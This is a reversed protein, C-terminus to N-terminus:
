TRIVFSSAQLDFASRRKFTSLSGLLDSLNSEFFTPHFLENIPIATVPQRIQLQSLAHRRRKCEHRMVVGLAHSAAHVVHLNTSQYASLLLSISLFLPEQIIPPMPPIAAPNFRRLPSSEATLYGVYSQTSSFQSGEQEEASQIEHAGATGNVSALSEDSAPSEVMPMSPALPLLHDGRSSLPAEIAASPHIAILKAVRLCKVIVAAEVEHALFSPLCPFSPACLPVPNSACSSLFLKLLIGVSFVCPLCVCM